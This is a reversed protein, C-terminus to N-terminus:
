LCDYSLVYFVFGVDFLSSIGCNCSVCWMCYFRDQAAETM